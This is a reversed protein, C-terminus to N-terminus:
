RLCMLLLDILVRTGVHSVNLDRVQPWKSGLSSVFGASPMQAAFLRSASALEESLHFLKFNFIQFLWLSQWTESCACHQRASSFVCTMAGWPCQQSEWGPQVSAQGMSCCGLSSPEQTSGLLSRHLYCIGYWSDVPTLRLILFNTPQRCSLHFLM